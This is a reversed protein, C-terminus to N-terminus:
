MFSADCQLAPNQANLKEGLSFPANSSRM